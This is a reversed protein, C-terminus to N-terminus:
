DQMERRLAAIGACTSVDSGVQTSGISHYNLARCYLDSLHDVGIVAVEEGARLLSEAQQLEHGILLGSVFAPVQEIDLFGDLVRTRVTFLQHLIGGSTQQVADLGAMFAPPDIQSDPAFALVTSALAQFLDGTMFTTFDTIQGNRTRAWKSHTGPLCFLADDVDLQQLAGFIQIEEGRMVDTTGDIADTRVGGIFYGSFPDPLPLVRDALDSLSVPCNSYPTEQWGGRSGAMGSIYITKQKEPRLSEVVASLEGLYGTPILTKIGRDCHFRTRISGDERCLYARLNTTGWDVVIM